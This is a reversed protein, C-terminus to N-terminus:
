IPEGRYPQVYIVVQEGNRERGAEVSVPGNWTGDTTYDPQPGIDTNTAWLRWGILILVAAIIYGVIVWENM